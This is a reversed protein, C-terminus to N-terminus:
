AKQHPLSVQDMVAIGQETFFEQLDELTSSGLGNLQRRARRIQIGVGFAKHSGDLFGAQFPHNQESFARHAPGDVLKNLMIMALPIVLTQAIPQDHPFLRAGTACSRDLAAPPQTSHQVVILTLRCSLAPAVRSATSNVPPLAQHWAFRRSSATSAPPPTALPGSASSRRCPSSLFRALPCVSM